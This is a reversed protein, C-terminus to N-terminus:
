SPAACVRILVQNPGPEPRDLTELQLREPGGFDHIAIAQMTPM